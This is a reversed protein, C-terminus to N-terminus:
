RLASKEKVIDATLASFSVEFVAKERELKVTIPQVVGSPQFVWLKVAEGAIPQVAVEHWIQVSYIIGAPLDYRETWEHYAPATPAASSSSSPKSTEEEEQLPTEETQEAALFFEELQAAQLYPSLYRTATFGRETFAIQYPRKEKMAHLRAEKAMRALATVPERAEHEDKLGRFSPVAAGVIITLLTLVLVIEILTFGRQKVRFKSSQSRLRSAFHFIPSPARLCSSIKLGRVKSRIKVDLHYEPIGM